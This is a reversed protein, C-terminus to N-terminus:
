HTWEHALLGYYDLDIYRGARFECERRTGEHTFGLTELLQGCAPNEPEVVAEVRHVAMAGLAQDIVPVLCEAMVEAGWYDPLLWYDLEVCRNARDWDNFGCAGILQEPLDLPAIGWWLGEQEEQLEHQWAMQIHSIDQADCAVGYQALFRPDSMGRQIQAIDGSQIERLVFHPTFFTPFM